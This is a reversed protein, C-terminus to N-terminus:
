RTAAFAEVRRATRRRANAGVLKVSEECTVFRRVVMEALLVNQHRFWRTECRYKRRFTGDFVRRFVLM